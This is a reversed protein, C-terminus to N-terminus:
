LFGTPHLRPIWLVDPCVQSPIPPPNQNWSNPPPSSNASGATIGTKRRKNGWAQNASDPQLLPSQTVASM